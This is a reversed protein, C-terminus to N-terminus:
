AAEKLQEKRGEVFARLFAEDKQEWGCKERLAAEGAWRGDIEAASTVSVLWKLAYGRYQDSDTPLKIEATKRHSRVGDVMFCPNNRLIDVLCQRREVSRSQTKGEVIYDERIPASYGVSMPVTTPVNGRFKVGAVETNIPDGDGPLYTVEASDKVKAPRGRKKETEGVGETQDAADATATDDNM